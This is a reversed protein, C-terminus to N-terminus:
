GTGVITDAELKLEIRPPFGFRKKAVLTTIQSDSQYVFKEIADALLSVYNILDPRSVPMVVRKPLSKPRPRYFTAELRLPVGEGFAGKDALAARILNEARVTKHPTYIFTRGGKVAVRPRLKPAPEVLITAEIKL